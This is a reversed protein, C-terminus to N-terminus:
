RLLWTKWEEELIELSGPVKKGETSLRVRAGELGHRISERLYGPDCASELFEFLSATQAYWQLRSGAKKGNKERSDPHVSDLLDALPIWGGAELSQRLARRYAKKQPDPDFLGAFGEDIWDPLASGYSGRRVGYTIGVLLHGLEHAFAGEIEGDWRWIWRAGGRLFRPDKRDGSGLLIAGRPAKRGFLREFRGAAAEAQELHERRAAEDPGFVDFSGGALRGDQFSLLIWLLSPGVERLVSPPAWNM